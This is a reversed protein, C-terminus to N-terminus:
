TEMEEEVVEGVLQHQRKRRIREAADHAAHDPKPPRFGRLADFILSLTELSLRHDNALELKARVLLDRPVPTATPQELLVEVAMAVPVRLTMELHRRMNRLDAVAGSLLAANQRERVSPTKAESKM